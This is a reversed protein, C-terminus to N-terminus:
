CNKFQIKTWDKLVFVYGSTVTVTNVNQNSSVYLVITPESSTWRGCFVLPLLDPLEPLAPSPVSLGWAFDAVDDVFFCSDGGIIIVMTTRPTAAVPTIPAVINRAKLFCSEALLGTGLCRGVGDTFWRRLLKAILDM